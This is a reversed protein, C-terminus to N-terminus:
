VENSSGQSDFSDSSKLPTASKSNTLWPKDYNRTLHQPTQSFYNHILWMRLTAISFFSLCYLFCNHILLYHHM